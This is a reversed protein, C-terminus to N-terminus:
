ELWRKIRGKGEKIKLLVAGSQDTRVLEVSHDALRDLLEQHPHGYRNGQGSSILALDPDVSKLFAETTSYRSGHHGVHLLDAEPSGGRGLLAMEGKDTLDGTLLLSVQDLTIRLVLSAENLDGSTQDDQPHLVEIRYGGYEIRDGAKVREVPVRAEQALRLLEETMDEEGEGSGPYVPKLEVPLCLRDILGLELMEAVGGAHDSHAHTVLALDIRTVAYSRAAPVVTHYGEGRDGGDVLLTNGGRDILLSADGQGVDLFLVLHSSSWFFFVLVLGTWLSTALAIIKRHVLIKGGQGKLWLVTMLILPLALLPWKLPLFAARSRATSEALWEFLRVGPSLLATFFSICTRAALSGAPFLSMLGLALYTAATLFAALPLAAVNALPALLHIGPASLMQYPLIVAQAAISFLVSRQLQGALRTRPNAAQGYLRGATYTVAAATTLSMWFGTDYFSYPRLTLILSGAICLSNFPDGRRRLPLDLQSLLSVTSARSIGSKWGSLTGPLILLPILFGQRLRRPLKLRGTLKLFPTLIFLLHTGSVSTLHSLGATRLMYKQRDSLLRSDGVSLSLLFPGGGKLWFSSINSRVQCRIAQPLRGLKLLLNDEEIIRIRSATGLWVAGKSWLWNRRSFGGPNRTGEPVVFRARGEVRDGKRGPREMWLLVPTGDALILTQTRGGDEDGPVATGPDKILATFSIEELPLEREWRRIRLQTSCFVTILVLLFLIAGPRLAARGLRDEIGPAETM